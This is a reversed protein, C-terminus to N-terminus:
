RKRARIVVRDTMRRINPDFVNLTHGDRPNALLDSRAEIEFGAAALLREVDEVEIRHLEANDQGAIGVHDIFGLLGGPKLAARVNALYALAADEGRFGLQDHLTLFTMAADFQGDM